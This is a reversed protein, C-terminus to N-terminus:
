TKAGEKQHYHAQLQSSCKYHRRHYVRPSCGYANKFARSFGEETYGVAAALVYMNVRRESLVCAAAELRCRMVYEWLGVGTAQRFRTAVNNNRSRCCKKIEGASLSPRFLNTRIYVLMANIDTPLDTHHPILAQAFGELATTVDTQQSVLSEPRTTRTLQIGAVHRTYM